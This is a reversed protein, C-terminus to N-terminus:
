SMRLSTAVSMCRSTSALRGRPTCTGASTHAAQRSCGMESVERMVLWLWTESDPASEGTSLCELPAALPAVARRFEKPQRKLKHIREAHDGGAASFVAAEIGDISAIAREYDDVIHDAAQHLM